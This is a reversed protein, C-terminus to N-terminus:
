GTSKQASKSRLLVMQNWHSEWSTAYRCETRSAVEAMCSKMMCLGSAFVVYKWRLFVIAKRLSRRDSLATERRSEVTATTTVRMRSASMRSATFAWM